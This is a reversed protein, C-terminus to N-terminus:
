LKVINSESLILIRGPNLTNLDSVFIKVICFVTLGVTCELNDAMM